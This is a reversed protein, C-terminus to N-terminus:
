HHLFVLRRSIFIKKRKFLTQKKDFESFSLLKISLLTLFMLFTFTIFIESAARTIVMIERLVFVIALQIVGIFCFIDLVNWIKEGYIKGVASAMLFIIMPGSGFFIFSFIRHPLLITAPFIGIGCLAIMDVLLLYKGLKGFGINLYQSKIISISFLIGFIGAAILGFNFILSGLGRAAWIPTEGVDGGLRSFWNETLCFWPSFYISLVLCILLTIPFALGYYGASKISILEKLKM